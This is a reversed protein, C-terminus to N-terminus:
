KPIVIQDDVHARKRDKSAEPIRDHEVGGMTHLQWTATARFGAALSFKDLGQGAGCGTGPDIPKKHFDMWIVVLSQRVPGIHNREM